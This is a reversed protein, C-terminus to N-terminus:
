LKWGHFRLFGTFDNMNSTKRNWPKLSTYFPNAGQEVNGYEKDMGVYLDLSVLSLLLSEWVKIAGRVHGKLPWQGYYMSIREGGALPLATLSSLPQSKASVRQYPLSSYGHVVEIAMVRHVAPRITILLAKDAAVMELKAPLVEGFVHQEKEPWNTPYAELPLFSTPIIAVYCGCANVTTVLIPRNEEDLTVVVILGVNNGASLHFPILSFPTKTFHLRYVMNTYTARETSFVQRDYYVVARQPDVFVRELDGRREALVKGIRNYPQQWEPVQFFLVPTEGRAMLEPITVLRVDESRNGLPAACAALLVLLLCPGSLNTLITGLVRFSIWTM